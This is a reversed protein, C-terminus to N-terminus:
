APEIKDKLQKLQREIETKRKLLVSKKNKLIQIEDEKPNSVIGYISATMREGQQRVNLIQAEVGLLESNVKALETELNQLMVAENAKKAEKYVLYAIGVGCISVLLAIISIWTMNGDVKHTELIYNLMM